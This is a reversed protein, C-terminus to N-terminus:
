HTRYRPRVLSKLAARTNLEVPTLPAALAHDGGRPAEFSRRSAKQAPGPAVMEGSVRGINQHVAVANRDDPILLSPRPELARGTAPAALVEIEVSEGAPDAATEVVSRAVQVPRHGTKM